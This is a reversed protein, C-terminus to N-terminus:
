FNNTLSRYLSLTKETMSTVTYEQGINKSAQGMRTRLQPDNILTELAKALSEPDNHDVIFGNVQDTLMEDTGGVPTAIIPLGANSAEILVYPFAEYRSPMVFIDFAPMYDAGNKDVLWKIKHDINLQRARNILEAQLPGDGLMILLLDPHKHAILAFSELLREPAKQPVLRGVFGISITENSINVSRRVLDRSIYNQEVMGNQIVHLKEEPLGLHLAHIKEAKSVLIIANCIRSLLREIISYFLYPKKDLSPDLTRFAHPTYISTGPNGLASLRALAGGKSSHGHIVDFPGHTKLIKRLQILSIIDGLCPSRKIDIKFVILDKISNIENKFEESARLGSYVVTVSCNFKILERALDIVHRGSGGGSTELILLIRM